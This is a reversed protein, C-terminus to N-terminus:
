IRAAGQGAKGGEWSVFLAAQGARPSAASRTRYHRGILSGCGTSCTKGEGVLLDDAYDDVMM